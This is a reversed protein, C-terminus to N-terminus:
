RNTAFFSRGDPRTLNVHTRAEQAPEEPEPILRVGCYHGAGCALAAADFWHNNKRIRKWVIREGKGPEFERHQQEATLHKALSLHERPSARFLTLAGPATVPCSLRGHVWTKLADADVHVLEVRHEKLWVAHYNDGIWRTGQQRKDPRQYYGGRWESAGHGKTPHFGDGSERCFQYVTETQYGSDIWSESVPVLEGGERPFGTVAIERWQRLAVLVSKEVPMDRSPVEIVGYDITFGSPAHWAIAYWHLLWKGVDVGATVLEASPPVVRQTFNNTRHMVAEFEVDHEAQLSPEYPLAWVFQRQKKEANDEDPDRSAKWEDVALDAPQLFLNNFGNFRFGLTNTQPAPGSIEGDGTVSQGRHALVARHNMAEREEDSWLVGCSSCVFAAQERAEYESEADQHGHLDEREPSVWGGCHPCSCWIRSETGGTYERWTRGTDTSVTCELYIRARSGFARVRAEMQTVKDAERSNGGSEDMGDTETVVLVRSTFGARKKDSGGGSMFKLTAGNRFKIADIKGGRSGAGNRPLQDRFRSAEIAPLLDERWKDAAMDLSPIGCIVTERHEFLHWLTPIVYGCFTKGAQSPGTFAFRSWRESDIADFWLGAFPQRATKFKRGKFPGDPVVIEAEAFERLSRLRRPRAHALLHLAETLMPTALAIM